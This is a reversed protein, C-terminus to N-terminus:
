NELSPYNWVGIKAPHKLAAKLDQLFQHRSLPSAGLSELHSTPLQCDIFDFQWTKCAECLYYIALKSGDRVRHFMSEGFFAKGLSIGYLGGILKDQQWVELSHAYGLQHLQTYADIMEPTIWTQNTRGSESACAEIVAKFDKDMTIHYQKKLSQSLSRSLKFESPLLVMRPDPSWWLIPQDPEYWPFIGQSYADILRQPSLDGGVALLGQDDYHEPNPFPTQGSLLIPKISRELIWTSRLM